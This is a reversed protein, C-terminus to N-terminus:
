VSGDHLGACLRLFFIGFFVPPLIVGVEAKLSLEGPKEKRSEAM